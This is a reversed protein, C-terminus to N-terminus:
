RWQEGKAESESRKLNKEKVVAEVIWKRHEIWNGYGGGHVRTKRTLEILEIKTIFSMDASDGATTTSASTYPMFMTSATSSEPLATRHVNVVARVAELTGRLTHLMVLDGPLVEDYGSEITIATTSLDCAGRIIKASFQEAATM